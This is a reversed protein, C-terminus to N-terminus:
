SISDSYNQNSIFSNCFIRSESSVGRLLGLFVCRLMLLVSGNDSKRDLLVVNAANYAATV